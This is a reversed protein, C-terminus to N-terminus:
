SDIGLPGTGLGPPPAKGPCPPLEREEVMDGGDLGLECQTCVGDVFDHLRPVPLCKGDHGDRLVCRSSISCLPPNHFPRGCGCECPSCEGDHDQPLACFWSDKPDELMRLSRREHCCTRTTGDQCVQFRVRTPNKRDQKRRKRKRNRRLPVVLHHAVMSRGDPLDVVYEMPEDVLVVYGM